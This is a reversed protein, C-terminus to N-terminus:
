EGANYLLGRWDVPAAAADLRIKYKLGDTNFDEMYDIYPEQQGPLFFLKVGLGKKGALYWGTESVDDLRADYFRVFYDGSYPNTRTASASADDFMVSRFLVESTGELAVPALFYRPQINLSRAGLLDKQTRMMKIAESLSSTGPAAGTGINKHDVHFLSKGDSMPRNATLIGYAMDGLRRNAAEGAGTILTRFAELDDNVISVRSLTIIRGFTALQVSEGTDTLNGTEYEGHEEKEKLEPIESLRSLTQEKFDKVVGTECWDQWTEEAGNFGQQLHNGAVDALVNPFDSSGLARTFNLSNVDSRSGTRKAHLDGIMDVLTMGAFENAVGDASGTRFLLAEVVGQRTKEFSSRGMDIRGHQNQDATGPSAARPVVGNLHRLLFMDQADQREYQRQGLGAPLLGDRQRDEFYDWAEDENADSPLGCIVLYKRLSGSMM